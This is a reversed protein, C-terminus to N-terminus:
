SIICGMKKKRRATYHYGYWALWQAVNQISQEDTSTCELWKTAGAERAARKGEEESINEINVETNSADDRSDSKCGILLIPASSQFHRVM